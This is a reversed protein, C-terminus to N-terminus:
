RTFTDPGVTSARVILETPLTIRCESVPAGEILALLREAAVEGIKRFPQRITTIGGGARAADPVDDFGVVAIDDPVRIGRKRLLEMTFAAVGDSSLVVADLRSSMDVLCKAGQEFTALDWPSKPGLAVKMPARDFALGADSMALRFGKYRDVYNSSYLPGYYGIRRRGISLLHEVVTRMAGINDTNVYGVNRPVHRSLACVIPLGAEATSELVRERLVPAVWLLGDIHGDLFRRGGDQDWQFGSTHLLIDRGERDAIRNIGTLIPPIISYGVGEDLDLMGFSQVGLIRTCGQRIARTLGSPTFRLTDITEKIRIRTAASM